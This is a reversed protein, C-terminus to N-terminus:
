HQDWWEEEIGMQFLIPLLQCWDGAVLVLKGGFVEDHKGTIERLSRDICEFNRKDLM